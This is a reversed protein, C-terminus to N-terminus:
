LSGKTTKCWRSFSRYLGKDIFTVPLEIAEIGNLHHHFCDDFMKTRYM